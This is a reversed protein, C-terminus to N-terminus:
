ELRGGPRDGKFKARMRLDDFNLGTPVLTIVHRTLTGM